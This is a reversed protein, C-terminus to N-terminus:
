EDDDGDWDSAFPIEAEKLGDVLAEMTDVTKGIREIDAGWQQWGFDTGIIFKSTTGDALTITGEISTIREGM